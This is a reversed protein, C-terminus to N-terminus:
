ATGGPRLLEVPTRLLLRLDLGLSWGRAYAVDMELAEGFSSKARATVQWLGTLGAPVLFREFHHPEFFHTEYELCPRPGVLSMDGRLVNILQPLEDLSTRRLWRGVRTVSDARDLKYRGNEATAHASMTERIYARHEEVNTDVAMTRFKLAEFPRMGAGLREQRFFVPGESDRRILVAFVLFLPATVLLGVAAGVVDIARKLLRSSRPLRLPPIGVVSLGEIGHVFARPGVLEYLRAVVDVQVDRDLENIARVAQATTADPDNSFAVVLREVDLDAVLEALDEPKGLVTLHDLEPRRECPEGDVFGVVDIGYEPHMLLKRAVLQGIEGAGVVIANQRYASSQRCLARAVARGSTVLVIALGWFFVFPALPPVSGNVAWVGVVLSWVGVTLLHFAAALEDTTSYDAWELDREYLRYVKAAVIWCPLSAAFLAVEVGSANRLVAESAFFALSVAILDAGLLMRRMLWGRRRSTPRRTRQRLESLAVPDPADFASGGPIVRLEMKGEGDLVQLGM